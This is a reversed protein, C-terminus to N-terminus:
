FLAAQRRELSWGMYEFAAVLNRNRHQHALERLADIVEAADGMEICTDFTREGFDFVTFFQYGPSYIGAEFLKRLCDIRASQGDHRGVRTSYHFLWAGLEFYKAAAASESAEEYRDLTTGKRTAAGRLDKADARLQELQVKTLPPLGKM